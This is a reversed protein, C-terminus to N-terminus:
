NQREHSMLEESFALRRYPAKSLVALLQTTKLNPKTHKETNENNLKL